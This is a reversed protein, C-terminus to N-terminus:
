FQGVIFGSGSVLASRLKRKLFDDARRNMAAAQSEVAYQVRRTLDGAESAFKVANTAVIKFSHDSVEVRVAGPAATHRGIWQPLKVGLEEAAARWGAALWGVRDQISQIYFKLFTDDPIFYIRRQSRGRANNGKLRQHVKGGDFAYLGKGIVKRAIESAQSQEGARHHRWFARASKADKEKIENYADRPMGYVSRIDSRVLAQGHWRAAGGQAAIWAGGETQFRYAPPTVGIVHRVIGRMQEEALLHLDRKSHEAIRAFGAEFDQTYIRLGDSSV